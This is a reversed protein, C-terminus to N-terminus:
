RFLKLFTLFLSFGDDPGAVAVGLDLNVLTNWPGIFNGALGVGGLFENDLGTEEDTAWAGDGVLELRLLEGVEFGYTMHVAYAESARVKDSQYGHVRVKSFYGFQYKSFRDLNRGDRYEVELGVKQFKPLWWTKAAGVNWLTFRETDPNFAELTASGPRGWPQWDARMNEEAGLLLRYGARTYSTELSVSQTFQDKPLVFDDATDSNSQYDTYGLAYTLDVKGFSGLPHGLFLSVRAPRSDIKDALIEQGNQYPTDSGAIALAFVNAGADWKSGFLDADAINGVLVAGAFFLNVQKGTGRFDFSFFDIGGLPLPYDFSEDWLVGAVAFRRSSDFDEQLKREGTEDDKILYRLGKATDRVMTSDSAMVAARRSDFEPGNLELATLVTEKEVLISANLVSLLQQGVIRQPIWLNDPSWEAATGATPDVPSFYFTEENSLVEGSLGVQLGRTRVPGFHERDVWVTGQYLTRGGEVEAAPSFDVVWCDRGEVTDTGRLRYRYEKNFNIELPLAAAKEPQLLPFEPLDKGRWRVGNFYLTDWAWDFGKGRKFFFPGALTAEFAQVGAGSAFRLHMTNIAQYHDLRREQNDEFAQLRRLIEEVPMQREGAVDVREELGALGEIEAASMREVRLLAVPGPDDVRLRFADATRQQGFIDFPEGTSTDVRTPRTLQADPFSLDLEGADKPSRVVVRLQLDKGRVFSWAEAGGEPTSYPDLSLDGQFERALLKLPFLDATTITEPGRFLSVAFGKAAWRASEALTLRADGPWPAADLIVPKGPDLEALRAISADLEDDGAPALAIGQVYAAVDEAYLATLATPDAALPATIVVSDDLAGAVAVSARKLLFAYDATARTADAGGADNDPQWLIQFHTGEGARRAITAAAELEPGLRDVHELIPRPTRFVLRLWPRAGAARLAETQGAVATTDDLAVPWAVYLREEEGLRPESELGPILDLPNEVVLGGCPKCPPGQAFLSGTPALSAALLLLPLLLRPRRTIHRM